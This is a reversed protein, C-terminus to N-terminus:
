APAPPQTREDPNYESYRVLEFDAGAEVLETVKIFKKVAGISLKFRRGDYYAGPGLLLTSTGNLMIADQWGYVGAEAAVDWASREIKDLSGARGVDPEGKFLQMGVLAQNKDNRSLRRVVGVTWDMKDEYRFGVLAGIRLWDSHQVATAGIGTESADNVSWRQMLEKDGALEIKKLLEKPDTVNEPKPVARTENVFGYRHMEFLDQHSVYGTAKGSKLYAIGAIMRRVQSFGHLVNLFAEQRERSHQRKPPEKSWHKVVKHLMGVCEDPKQQGPLVLWEPVERARMIEKLLRIIHVLASGVGFYRMTSKHGQGELLRDPWQNRALDVYFLTTADRGERFGFYVDFKRIVLDLSEMQHADINGLPGMEFAMGIMFERYVSTEPMRKPYVSVSSKLYGNSEAYVFLWYTEAWITTDVFRYRMRLLKKHTVAAQMARVLLITVTKKDLGTDGAAAYDRLLTHYCTLVNRTFGSLAFWAQEARPDTVQSALMEFWLETAFPQAEEDLRTYARARVAIGLDTKEGPAIWEGVEGILRSASSAPLGDIVEQLGKPTALPHASGEKKGLGKALWDLM